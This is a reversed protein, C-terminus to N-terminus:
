VTVPYASESVIQYIEGQAYCSSIRSLPPVAECASWQTEVEASLRRSSVSYFRPHEGSGNQVRFDTFFIEGASFIFVVASCYLALLLVTCNM